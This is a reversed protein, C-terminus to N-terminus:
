CIKLLGVMGICSGDGYRYECNKCTRQRDSYFGQLLHYYYKQILHYHFFSKGEGSSLEEIFKKDINSLM